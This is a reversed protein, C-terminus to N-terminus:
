RLGAGGVAKWRLIPFNRLGSDKFGDKERERKENGVSSAFGTPEVKM